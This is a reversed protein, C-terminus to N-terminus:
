LYIRNNKYLSKFIKKKKPQVVAGVLVKSPLSMLNVVLMLYQINLELGDCYPSYQLWDLQISKKM